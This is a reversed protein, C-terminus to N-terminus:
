CIYNSGGDLLNGDYIWGRRGDFRVHTWTNGSENFVYCDYNVVRNIQIGSCSAHPGSRFMVWGITSGTTPDRNTSSHSGCNASASPAVVVMAALALIPAAVMALARRKM